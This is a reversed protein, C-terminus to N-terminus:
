ETSETIETSESNEEAQKKEIDELVSVTVPLTSDFLYLATYNIIQGDVAVGGDYLFLDRNKERKEMKFVAETKNWAKYCKNILEGNEGCLTSNYQLPADRRQVALHRLRFLPYQEKLAETSADIMAYFVPSTEESYEYTETILLVRMGLQINLLGNEDQGKLGKEYFHVIKPLPFHKAAFKDWAILIPVQITKWIMLIIIAVLLGVLVSGFIKTALAAGGIMLVLSLITLITEM